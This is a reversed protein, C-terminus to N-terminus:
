ESIITPIETTTTDANGSMDPVEPPKPVEGWFTAQTSLHNIVNSDTLYVEYDDEVRVYNHTWDSKSRGFVYYAITSGSADILALHTGTSDDVSFKSWNDPNNSVLTERNVQLVSTLLNDIRNQRMVLTDNGSIVWTDAEKSLEIANGASQILVKYVDEPNGSFIESSRTTYKNQFYSNAFYAIVLMVILIIGNRWNKNM